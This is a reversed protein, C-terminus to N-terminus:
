VFPQSKFKYILQLREGIKKCRENILYLMNMPLKDNDTLTRHDSWMKKMEDHYKKRFENRQEEATKMYFASLQAKSQEAVAKYRNFLEQRIESNEISNILLSQAIPSNEFSQKSSNYYIMQQQLFKLEQETMEQEYKRHCLQKFLKKQYENPHHRDYAQKLAQIHYDYHVLEIQHEIEMHLSCLNQEIYKEMLKEVIFTYGNFNNAKRNWEMQNQKLQHDLESIYKIEKSWIQLNTPYIFQKESDNILQGMGSKLHTTWLRHYIQLLMIKYLLIAIDRLEDRHSNLAEIRITSIAQNLLQQFSANQKALYIPIKNLANQISKIIFEQEDTANTSLQAMKQSLIQEETPKLNSFRQSNRPFRLETYVYKSMSFDDYQEYEGIDDSNYDNNRMAM